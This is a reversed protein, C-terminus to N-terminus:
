EGQEDEAEWNDAPDVSVVYKFIVFDDDDCMLIPETGARLQEFLEAMNGTWSRQRNHVDTVIYQRDEAPTDRYKEPVSM